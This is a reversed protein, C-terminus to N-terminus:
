HKSLKDRLSLFENAGLMEKFEDLGVTKDAM